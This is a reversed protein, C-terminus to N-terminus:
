HLIPLYYIKKVALQLSILWPQYELQRVNSANIKTRLDTHKRKYNAM